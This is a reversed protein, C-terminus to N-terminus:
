RQNKTRQGQSHDVGPALLNDDGQRRRQAQDKQQLEHNELACREYPGPGVDGYDEKNQGGGKLEKRQRGRMHLRDRGVRDCQLRLQEAVQGFRVLGKRRHRQTEIGTRCLPVQSQNQRYRDDKDDHDIDVTLGRSDFPQQTRNGDDAAPNGHQSQSLIHRAVALDIPAYRGVVLRVRTREDIM